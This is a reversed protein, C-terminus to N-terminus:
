TEPPACIETNMRNKRKHSVNMDAQKGRIDLHCSVFCLADVYSAGEVLSVCRVDCIGIVGGV